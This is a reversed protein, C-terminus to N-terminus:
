VDLVVRPVTTYNKCNMDQALSVSVCFEVKTKNVKAVAYYLNNSDYTTAKTARIRCCLECFM